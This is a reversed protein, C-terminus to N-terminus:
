SATHVFGPTDPHNLSWRSASPFFLIDVVAQAAAGATQDIGRLKRRPPKM